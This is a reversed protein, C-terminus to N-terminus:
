PFYQQLLQTAIQGNAGGPDLQATAKLEAAASAYDGLQLYTEALHLHALALEPEAQIAQLLTRRGVDPSGSRTLVWGLVDLTAADNPALTEAKIAAPLGIEQLQMDNDACFAALHRWTSADNPALQAAQQYASLARVLDGGAAYADGLSSQVAASGPDLQAAVVLEQLAGAYDGQRGLYLSRLSLVVADDPGLALAREMAVAGSQGLHQESEALWAWAEADEAHAVVAAQFAIHALRWEGVLGLGRGLLTMRRAPDGELSAAAQAAELTTAASAYRSDQSAATRLHIIADKSGGLLLILGLRYSASADEGVALRQVLMAEEGQFDGQADYAAVLRDLLAPETPHRQLAYQWADIAAAPQGQTWLASGLAVSGDLSLQGQRGALNLLRIASTSDGSRFATVGAPEWLDTRWPLLSAAHEYLRAAEAYRGAADAQAALHLDRWGSYLPPTLAVAVLLLVVPVTRTWGSKM